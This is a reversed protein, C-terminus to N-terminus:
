QVLWVKFDNGWVTPNARIMDIVPGIPQAQSGQIGGPQNGDDTSSGLAVITPGPTFWPCGSDGPLQPMDSWVLAFDPRGRVSKVKIINGTTQGTREGNKSVTDGVALPGGVTTFFPNVTFQQYVSFVTYGRSGTLQDDGDEVDAKWAVVEGIQVGDGAYVPQNAVQDSCHGATVALHDDRANFGFFGLTCLHKGITIPMGVTLSTGAAAALPAAAEYGVVTSIV